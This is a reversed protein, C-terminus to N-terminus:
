ESKAILWTDANYKGINEKLITYNYNDLINKEAPDVYILIHKFNKLIELVAYLTSGQFSNYLYIILCGASVYDALNIASDCHVVPIISQFKVKRLNAQAFKALDSDYEIGIPTKKCLKGYNLAYVMLAKGKGCGLDIFQSNAFDNESIYDRIYGVSDKTVSTFSGVYLLGNNFEKKGTKVTQKEKPVRTSTKVGHIFDFWISEWFYTWVFLIGRERIAKFYYLFLKYNM